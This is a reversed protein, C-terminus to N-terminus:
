PHCAARQAENQATNICTQRMYFASESMHIRLQDETERLQAKLDVMERDVVFILFASLAIVLLTALGYRNLLKEARGAAMEIVMDTM